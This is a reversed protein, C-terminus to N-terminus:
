PISSLLSNFETYNVVVCYYGKGCYGCQYPLTGHVYSHKKLSLPSNFEQGCIDCDLGYHDDKFHKNLGRTSPFKRNCLYCKFVRKCTKKIHQIMNTDKHAKLGITCIVFKAAPKKKRTGPKKKVPTANASVPPEYIVTDDSDM